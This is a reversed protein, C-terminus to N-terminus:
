RVDGGASSIIIEVYASWPVELGKVFFLLLEEAKVPFEGVLFIEELVFELYGRGGRREGGRGRGRRVVEM